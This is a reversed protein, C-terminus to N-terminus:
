LRFTPLRGLRDIVQKRHISFEDHERALRRLIELAQRKDGTQFLAARWGHLLSGLLTRNWSARRRLGPAAGSGMERKSVDVARDRPCQDGTWASISFRNSTGALGARPCEPADRIGFAFFRAIEHFYPQRPSLEVAGTIPPSPSWLSPSNIEWLRELGTADSPNWKLISKWDNNQAWISRMASYGLLVELSLFLLGVSYLDGGPAQQTKCSIGLPDITWSSCAEGFCPHSLGSVAYALHPHLPRRLSSFWSPVVKATKRLPPAGTM